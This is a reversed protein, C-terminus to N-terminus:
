KPSYLVKGFNVTSLSKARASVRVKLSDLMDSSLTDSINTKHLSEDISYVMMTTDRWSEDIIRTNEKIATALELIAQSHELTAQSQASLSKMIESLMMFIQSYNEDKTSVSEQMNKEVAIFYKRTEKGKANNELMELEKSMDITVIYEKSIRIQNKVQKENKLVLYDINELFDYKKIARQIWDAFKTKVGLFEHIERANVSNIEEAGIIRKEIKILERMNRAGKTIFDCYNHLLKSHFYILTLYKLINEYCLNFLINYNCLKKTNQLKIFYQV